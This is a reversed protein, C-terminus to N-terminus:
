AVLHKTAEKELENNCDHATFGFVDFGGTKAAKIGSISYEIVLCECPKFGMTKAARLFVASDPKWKQITYCSFIKTKFNPLLGSLQLNLRIKNEPASSAVSFPVKLNDLVNKIGEVAKM